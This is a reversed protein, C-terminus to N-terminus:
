FAGKGRFVASATMALIRVDRGFSLNEIYDCEVSLREALSLAGRGYVQMPGTLGPKVELRRRQEPSYREVLDVQEPRPGVLSMDGKLVNVLQPLEDLSWRRLVRGVRTTRPDAALKFMPEELREFPVIGQLLGEANAVMSRFKVIRFPRGSAGARLQTFVVPGRSDLKIAVAILVFFPLLMLLALASLAGDLSRKLFLTSRSLDGTNYELFPLDALHNLQAAMGFASRCPPVISLRVGAARAAELLGRVEQEDLMNPALVLRDVSGLLTPDRTVDDLDLSDRVAVIKMHVDPFLELKRRVANAEDSAGIIVAREPPTMARWFWRTIARLAFTSIAAVVGTIVAESADPRGVPTLDLFLSLGSTGIMAWLILLPFEDVTLARLTRKDRDYLGLLKAVVVWIPLYALSWVLPAM